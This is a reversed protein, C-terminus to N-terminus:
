SKVIEMMIRVVDELFGVAMERNHCDGRWEGSITTRGRWSSVRVIRYEDAVDLGLELVPPSWSMCILKQM